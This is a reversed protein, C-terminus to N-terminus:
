AHAVLIMAAVQVLIGAVNDAIIQTLKCPHWWTNSCREHIMFGFGLAHLAVPTGLDTEDEQIDFCHGGSFLEGPNSTPPWWTWNGIYGPRSSPCGANFGGLLGSPPSSAHGDYLNSCSFHDLYPVAWVIGALPRM